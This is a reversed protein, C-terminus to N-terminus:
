LEENDSHWSVHHSGDQYLNLLCSNYTIGPQLQQVADRVQLVVQLLLLLPLDVLTHLVAPPKCPIHM